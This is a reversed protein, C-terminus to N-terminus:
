DPQCLAISVQLGPLQSTDSTPRTSAITHMPAAHGAEGLSGGTPASELRVCTERERKAAPEERIEAM